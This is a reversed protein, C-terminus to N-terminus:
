SRLDDSTKALYMMTSMYALTTCPVSVGLLATAPASFSSSCTYPLAQASPLVGRGDKPRGRGTVSLPKQEAHRFVLDPYGSHLSRGGHVPAPRSPTKM